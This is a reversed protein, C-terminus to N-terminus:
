IQEKVGKIKGELINSIEERIDPLYNRETFPLIALIKPQTRWVNQEM